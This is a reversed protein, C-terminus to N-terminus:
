LVSNEINEKMFEPCVYWNVGILDHLCYVNWSFVLVCKLIDLIVWKGICMISTFTSFFLVLFLIFCSILVFCCVCNAAINTITHSCWQIMSCIMYSYVWSVFQRTFIYKIAKVNSRHGQFFHTELYENPSYFVHRIKKWFESFSISEIWLLDSM